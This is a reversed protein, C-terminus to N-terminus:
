PPQETHPVEAPTLEMAPIESPRDLHPTEVPPQETHPVEAPTLEMAPIESPRDLHPTEVPPKETHPVEAPTLEIAPIEPPQVDTLPVEVPIQAGIAIETPTLIPQLAEITSSISQAPFTEFQNNDLVQSGLSNTPFGSTANVVEGTLEVREIFHGGGGTGPEIPAENGAATADLAKTPDVGDTIAQQLAAVDDTAHETNAAASVGSQDSWHSNRGMDMTHGDSLNVTLAGNAGTVIEEGAFIRDGEHLERQTGDVAIAFVQGIVVKVIGLINHM